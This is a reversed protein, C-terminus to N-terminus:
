EGRNATRSWAIVLKRLQIHQKIPMSDRPIVQSTKNGNETLFYLVLLNRTVFQQQRLSALQGNHLWQNTSALYQVESNVAQKFGSITVLGYGVLLGVAIIKVSLIIPSIILVLLITAAVSLDFILISTAPSIIFRNRQNEVPM